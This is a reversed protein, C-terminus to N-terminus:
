ENDSRCVPTHVRPDTASVAWTIHLHKQKYSKRWCCCSSNLLNHEMTKWAFSSINCLNGSTPQQYTYKNEDNKKQCILAVEEKRYIMKASTRLVTSQGMFSGLVKCLQQVMGLETINRSIRYDGAGKWQWNLFKAILFLAWCLLLTAFKLQCRFCVNGDLMERMRPLFFSFILSNFLTWRSTRGAWSFIQAIIGRGLPIAAHM